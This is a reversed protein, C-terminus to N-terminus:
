GWRGGNIMLWTDFVRRKFANYNNGPFLKGNLYADLTDNHHLLSEGFAMEFEENNAYPPTVRHTNNIDNYVGIRSYKDYPTFQDPDAFTLIKSILSIQRTVGPVAIVLAEVNGDVGENTSIHQGLWEFVQGRIEGPIGRLLGYESYFQQFRQMDLLVPLAEIGQCEYDARWSIWNAGAYWYSKELDDDNM